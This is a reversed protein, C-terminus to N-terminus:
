QGMMLDMINVADEQPVVVTMGETIEDSIIEVYYDGETGVTVPVARQQQTVQGDEGTVSEMVYVVDNGNEDTQVADYPVTLVHEVESLVINMKATMGLRLRDTDTNIAVKIQYTVDGGSAAGATLSGNSSSTGTPM